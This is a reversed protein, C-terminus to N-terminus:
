NTRCLKEKINQVTIQEQMKLPEVRQVLLLNELKLAELGAISGEWSGTLRKGTSKRHILRPPFNVVRQWRIGLNLIREYLWTSNLV